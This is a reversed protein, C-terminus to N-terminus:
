SLCKKAEFDFVNRYTIGLMNHIIINMNNSDNSASNLFKKLSISNLKHKNNSSNLKLLVPKEMLFNKM